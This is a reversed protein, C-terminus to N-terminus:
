CPQHLPGVPNCLYMCIMNIQSGILHYMPQISKNLNSLGFVVTQQRIFLHRLFVDLNEVRDRSLNDIGLHAKQNTYWTCRM